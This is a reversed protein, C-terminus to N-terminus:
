ERPPIRRRKAPNIKRFDVVYDVIGIIFLIIGMRSLLMFVAILILFGKRVGKSKLFWIVVSLGTIEFTFGLISFLSNYVIISNPVKFYLLIMSILTASLLGTGFNSRIYWQDFPQIKNIKVRIKKFTLEVLYYTVFSGMASAIVMVGPLIMKINQSTMSYIPSSKIQEETTGMSKAIEISKKISEDIMTYFQKLPDIGTFLITLQLVAIYGIFTSVTMAMITIFPSYNKRLCFGLVVATLGYSLGLTLVTVPSAIMMALALSVVLSLLSTKIDYKFSLFTIPISWIFVGVISFVPIYASAILIVASLASLLSAEVLMRTEMKKM